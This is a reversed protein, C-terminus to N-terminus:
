GCREETGGVERWGGGVGRKLGGGVCVCREGTGWGWREGTGWGWREGTGWGWREGTGWAKVEFKGVDSVGGGVVWGTVKVRKNKLTRGAEGKFKGM